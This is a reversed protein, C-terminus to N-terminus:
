GTTPAEGTSVPKANGAILNWMEQGADSMAGNPRTAAAVM